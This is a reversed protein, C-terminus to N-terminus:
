VGMGARKFIQIGRSRNRHQPGSDAPLWDQPNERAVRELLKHHERLPHGPKSELVIVSVRQHDLFRKLSGADTFLPRYGGGNWDSSALSKSGRLIVREGHTQRRMAAEAIFAGEGEASGSVLYISAPAPQAAFAVEAAQQLGWKEAASADRHYMLVMGAPILLVAGTAAVPAKIRRFLEACATAAFVALVPAALLLKRAEVDLPVVSHLCIVAMLLALMSAFTAQFAESRRHFLFAMGALSLVFVPIGTVAPLSRSVGLFNAMWYMSERSYVHKVFDATFIHWPVCLAAIVAAGAWFSGRFIVDRRGTLLLALPPVLVVAWGNGKTLICLSALVGFAISDRWGTSDLYRAFYIVAAFGCAAVLMEPTVMATQSRVAPAAVVMGGALAAARWGYARYLTYAPLSAVAATIAAMLALVSTRSVGFVLMWAGELVYFAPPWHGIAVKSYRRYYERAYEIPPAPFGEAIYDRVMLGSVFHAPEDPYSVFEADFAGDLLQLALTFVYFVPFLWLGVYRPSLGGANTRGIPRM